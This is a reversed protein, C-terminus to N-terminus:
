RRDGLFRLLYIFLNIFDLYLQFAGFLATKHFAATGYAGDAYSQKIRQTDYATLLTFIIVGIFSIFWSMASSQMFINVVSAILLGILGMMLFSGMGSLDKKTTYGIASMAGFMGATIFFTASVSQMTYVLLLVSLTMGTLVSYVLFLGTAVAAPLKQILFMFGMAVVVQAIILGFMIPRNLIFMRILSESSAIALSTVATTLLGVTMWGYVRAMFTRQIALEQQYETSQYIERADFNSV